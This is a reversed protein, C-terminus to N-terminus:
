SGWEAKEIRPKPCIMLFEFVAQGSVVYKGQETDM